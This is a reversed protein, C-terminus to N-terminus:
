KKGHAHGPMIACKVQEILSNSCPLFHGIQPLELEAVIGAMSFSSLVDLSPTCRSTRGGSASPASTAGAPAGAAESADGTGPASPAGAAGPAAGVGANWTTRALPLGRRLCSSCSAPMAKVTRTGSTSSVSSGSRIASGGSAALFSASRLAPATTCSTRASAPNVPMAM